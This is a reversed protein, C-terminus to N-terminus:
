FLLVEMELINPTRFLRGLALELVPFYSTAWIGFDPQLDSLCSQIGNILDSM